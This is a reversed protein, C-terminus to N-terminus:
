CPDCLAAAIGLLLLDQLLLLKIRSADAHDVQASWGPVVLVRANFKWFAFDAHGHVALSRADSFSKSM